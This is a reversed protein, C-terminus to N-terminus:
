SYGLIRRLGFMYKESAADKLSFLAIECFAFTGQM